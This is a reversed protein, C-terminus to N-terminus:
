PMFQFYMKLFQRYRKGVGDSGLNVSIKNKMTQRNVKMTYVLVM